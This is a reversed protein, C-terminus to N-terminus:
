LYAVISRSGTSFNFSMSSTKVGATVVDDVVVVVVVVVDVM